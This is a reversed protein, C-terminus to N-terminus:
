PPDATIWGNENVTRGDRLHLKRKGTHIDHHATDCLLLLPQSPVM